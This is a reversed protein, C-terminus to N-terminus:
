KAWSDSCQILEALHKSSLNDRSTATLPQFHYWRSAKKSALQCRAQRVQVALLELEESRKWGEGEREGRGEYDGLHHGRPLQAEWMNALLEWLSDWSFSASAACDKRIWGWDCQMVEAMKKEDLFVCVDVWNGPFHCLSWRKISLTDFFKCIHKSVVM